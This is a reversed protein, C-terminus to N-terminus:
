REGSTAIYAVAIERPHVDLWFAVYHLRYGRRRLIRLVEAAEPAPLDRYPRHRNLAAEVAIPDLRRGTDEIPAPPALRRSRTRM